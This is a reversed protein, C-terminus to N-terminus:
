CTSDNGQSSCTGHSMFFKEGRKIHDIVCKCYYMIGLALADTPMSCLECKDVDVWVLNKSNKLADHFKRHITYSINIIPLDRSYYHNGTITCKIYGGARFDCVNQFKVLHM